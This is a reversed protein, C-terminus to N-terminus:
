TASRLVSQNGELKAFLDDLTPPEGTDPERGLDLGDFDLSELFEVLPVTLNADKM